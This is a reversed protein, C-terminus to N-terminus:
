SDCFYLTDRSVVFTGPGSNSADITDGTSKCIKGKNPIVGSTGIMIGLYPLNRRLCTPLPLLQSLLAATRPTGPMLWVM